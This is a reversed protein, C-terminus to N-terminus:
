ARDFLAIAREYADTTVGAYWAMFRAAAILFNWRDPLACAYFEEVTAHLHKFNHLLTGNDTCAVATLLAILPEPPAGTDAYAQVAATATRYDHAPLAERLTHLLSEPPIGHLLQVDEQYPYPCRPTFPVFCFTEDLVSPGRELLSGGQIAALVQTPPRMLHLAARLVNTTTNIHMPAVERSVADYDQHPVPEAMLYYDAAALSVAALVTHPSCGEAAMARAAIEPRECPPAAHFAARLGAVREPQFTTAPAGDCLRYARQLERARDYPRFDRPFSASYRLAWRLMPFGQEWGVLDLMGLSLVPTILTHDDTIMGELGIDLLLDVLVPHSMDEALASLRHDARMYEGFRVDSRLQTITENLTRERAPWFPPLHSPAFCPDHLDCVVQYLAQVILLWRTRHPQGRALRRADECGIMAHTVFGLLNRAQNNLYRAATLAGAAWLTDEDAGDRLARAIEEVATEPRLNHLWAIRQELTHTDLFNPSSQM